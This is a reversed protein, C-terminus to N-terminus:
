NQLSLIGRVWFCTESVINTHCPMHTDELFIAYSLNSSLYEMGSLNLSMQSLCFQPYKTAQNRLSFNIELKTKQESTFGWFNPIKCILIIMSDYEYHSIIRRAAQLWCSVSIHVESIAPICWMSSSTYFTGLTMYPVNTKGPTVNLIKLDAASTKYVKGKQDFVVYATTM